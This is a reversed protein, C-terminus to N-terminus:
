LFLKRRSRIVAISECKEKTLSERSHESRLSLPDIDVKLMHSWRELELIFKSCSLSRGQLGVVDESVLEILLRTGWQDVDCRKGLRTDMRGDCEHLRGYKESVREERSIGWATERQREGGGEKWM